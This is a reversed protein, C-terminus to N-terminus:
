IKNLKGRVIKGNNSFQATFFVLGLPFQSTNVLINRAKYTKTEIVTGNSSYYTLSATGNEIGTFEIKCTDRAPNPYALYATPISNCVHKITTKGYIGLRLEYYLNGIPPFSHIFNYDIEEAPGGCVGPYSYLLELANSDTGFYLDVDNCTFDAGTRWQTNVHSGLKTAEFFPLYQESVIQATIFQSLGIFLIFIIGKKM